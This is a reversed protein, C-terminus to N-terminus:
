VLTECSKQPYFRKNILKSIDQFEIENKYDAKYGDFYKIGLYRVLEFLRVIVSIYGHQTTQLFQNSCDDLTALNANCINNNLTTKFTNIYDSSLYIM